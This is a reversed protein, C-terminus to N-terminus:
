GTNNSRWADILTLLDQTEIEGNRWDGIATLLESTELGNGNEDYQDVITISEGDAIELGDDFIGFIRLIQQSSPDTENQKIILDQDYTGEPFRGSSINVTFNDAGERNTVPKSITNGDNDTVRYEVYWSADVSSLRPFTVEITGETANQSFEGPYGLGRLGPETEDIVAGDATQAEVVYRAFTSRNFINRDGSVTVNIETFEGSETTISLRDNAPSKLSGDAEYLNQTDFETVNYRETTDPTVTLSAGTNPQRIRVVATEAGGFGVSGGSIIVDLAMGNARPSLSSDGIAVAGTYEIQRDSSTDATLNSTDSGM